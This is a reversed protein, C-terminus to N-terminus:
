SGPTMGVRHRVARGTRELAGRDGSAPYALHAHVVHSEIEYVVQDPDEDAPMEGAAMAILVHERLLGLWYAQFEGLRTTVPCPRLHMEALSAAFFCGGPFVHRELHGTFEDVLAVVTARGPRAELARDVVERDFVAWAADITALQLAEKSGFHAYLGSKSMGIHEALGGLSLHDLGEITAMSAAAALISARTRTGDARPKRASSSTMTM